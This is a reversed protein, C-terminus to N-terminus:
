LTKESDLGNNYLLKFHSLMAPLIYKKSRYTVGHKEAVRILIRTLAPYHIHCVHQFLHHIVHHNFGGFLHTIASSGTAYDSTTYMQHKSWSYPMVGQADPEPFCSDDLMHTTLLVVVITLSSCVMLVLFAGLFVGLSLESFWWPLLVMYMVYVVKFVVMKIVEVVPYPRNQVGGIREYFVDKFDRYFVWRPIFLAYILPMYIWQFRHFKRREDQPFIKVVASQQIDPDYDMINSFVHHGAVHRNKWNFSSLGLFDFVYMCVRNYRSTKFLSNHAADHGVNLGLFVGWVGLFAYCLLVSGQSLNLVFLLSFVNLYIVFLCALKFFMWVNGCTSQNTAQFYARVEERLDSFFDDDEPPFTITQYNESM